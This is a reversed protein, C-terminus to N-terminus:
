NAAVGQISSKKLIHAKVAMFDTINIKGDGNTDAAMNGYGTLLTKKLVHAKVAMMDTINIKGDGNSDGTVIITYTRIAKSGDVLRVTMGTALVASESQQVGDKSYVKIYLKQDLASILESVTTGVTIKSVIDKDQSVNVKSSTISEPVDPKDPEDPEDPEDPTNEVIVFTVELSGAYNGKGYITITAEGAEDNDSCTFYYDEDEYLLTDIDSDFVTFEPVIATGNYIQDDIDSVTVEELSKPVITFTKDVSDVYNGIGTVTVTATGANINDSYTLTYDLNEDLIYESDSVIITAEIQEGTYIYTGTIKVECENLSVKPKPVTCDVVNSDSSEEVSDTNYDTVYYTTVKYYYKVDYNVSEDIYQTSDTVNGILEYEEGDLSRYVKYGSVYSVEDWSITIDRGEYSIDDITTSALELIASVVTSDLSTEGDYVRVKYYYTTNRLPVVDTYSTNMGTYVVVYEGNEETARLLEYQQNEIGEKWTVTVSTIGDKVIGTINTATIPEQETIEVTVVNSTATKTGRYEGTVVCYYYKTGCSTTDPTYEKSTAGQIAVGVADKSDAEYWQYKYAFNELEDKMDATLTVETNVKHKVDAIDLVAFEDIVGGIKILPNHKMTFETNMANKARVTTYYASSPDLTTYVMNALDSDSRSGAYVKGEADSYIYAMYSTVTINPVSYEDWTIYMLGNSSVYWKVNAVPAYNLYVVANVSDSLKKTEEENVYARVYYTANQGAELDTTDAVYSNVTAEVDAVEEETIKLGNSYKFSRYIKYGDVDDCGTWNLEVKGYVSNTAKLTTPVAVEKTCMLIISAVSEDKTEGDIVYSKVMYYYTQGYLTDADTYSVVNVSVNDYTGAVEVGMSDKLEYAVGDMSRYINYGDAKSVTDWTITIGARNYSIGKLEPAELSIMISKVESDLPTVDDYVRVKYYYTGNMVVDADTYTTATGRYVENYEGNFETARMLIYEQGSLGEQWNVTISSTGDTTISTIDTAKVGDEHSVAFAKICFNVNGNSNDDTFESTDCLADGILVYSENDGTVNTVSSVGGGGVTHTGSMSAHVNTQEDFELVVSFTDGPSVNVSKPLKVTYYGSLTTTGKVPEAFCVTGSEPEDEDPNLYIQVSYDRNPEELSFSVATVDQTGQGTVNFVSAYKTSDFTVYWGLMTGGDHQYNYDYEAKPAIEYVCANAKKIMMDDYSIWMYGGDGYYTGWSNKVLWAGDNAPTHSVGNADTITFNEKAIDDDWGVITIAHNTYTDEYTYHYYTNFRDSDKSYEENANYYTAVAGYEMVARKVIEHNAMNVFHQGTLVYDIKSADYTVASAGWQDYPVDEESVIGAWKNMTKFVYNDNGGNQLSTYMDTTTTKDSATTGTNDVFTSDDFTLYALAYESLDIDSASEVLGHKVAYAEMCAVAAFAWCTGLFSGQSKVSTIYGKEVSSYSSDLKTAKLLLENSESEIIYPATYGIDYYGDVVHGSTISEESGVPITGAYVANKDMLGMHFTQITLVTVMAFSVARKMFRNRRM